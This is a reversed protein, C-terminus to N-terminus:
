MKKPGDGVGRKNQSGTPDHYMCEGLLNASVAGGDIREMHGQDAVVVAIFSSSKALPLAPHVQRFHQNHKDFSEDIHVPVQFHFAFDLSM